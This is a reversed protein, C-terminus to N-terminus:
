ILTVADYALVAKRGNSKTERVGLMKKNPMVCDVLFTHSRDNRLIVLSGPEAPSDVLGRSKLDKVKSEASFYMDKDVMDTVMKTDYNISYEVPEESQESRERGVIPTNPSSGDLLVNSESGIKLTTKSLKGGLGIFDAEYEGVPLPNSLTDGEMQQTCSGISSINVQIGLRLLADCIQPPVEALKVVQQFDPEQHMMHSLYVGRKDGFMWYHYKEPYM